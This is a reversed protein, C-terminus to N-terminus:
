KEPKEKKEKGPNGRAPTRSRTKGQRPKRAGANAIDKRPEVFEFPFFPLSSATQRLWGVGEIHEAIKVRLTHNWFIAMGGGGDWSPDSSIEPKPPPAFNVLAIPSLFLVSINGAQPDLLVTWPSGVLIANAIQYILLDMFELINWYVWVCNACKASM